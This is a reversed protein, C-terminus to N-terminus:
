HNLEKQVVKQICEVKAKAESYHKYLEKLADNFINEMNYTNECTRCFEKIFCFDKEPLLTESNKLLLHVLLANFEEYRDKFSSM